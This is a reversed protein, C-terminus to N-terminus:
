SSAFFDTASRRGKSPRGHFAGRFRVDQMDILVVDEETFIFAARTENLFYAFTRTTM